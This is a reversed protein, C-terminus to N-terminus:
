GVRRLRRAAALRGSRRGTRCPFPSTKCQATRTLPVYNLLLVATGVDVLGLWVTDSSSSTPCSLRLAMAMHRHMGVTASCIASQICRVIGNMLMWFRLCPPALLLAFPGAATFSYDVRSHHPSDPQLCPYAALVIILQCGASLSEVVHGGARTPSGLLPCSACLCLHHSPPGIRSWSTRVGPGQPLGADGILSPGSGRARVGAVRHAGWPRNPLDAHGVGSLGLKRVWVGAVVRAGPHGGPLNTDRGLLPGLERARM